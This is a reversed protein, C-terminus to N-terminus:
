RETARPESETEAAAATLTLPNRDQASLLHKYPWPVPPSPRILGEWPSLSLSTQKQKKEIKYSLSSDWILNVKKDWDAVTSMKSFM